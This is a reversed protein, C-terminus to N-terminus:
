DAFAFQNQIYDPKSGSVRFKLGFYETLLQLPYRRFDKDDAYLCQFGLAYKKDIGDQALRVYFPDPKTYASFLIDVYQGAPRPFVRICMRPNDTRLYRCLRDYNEFERMTMM